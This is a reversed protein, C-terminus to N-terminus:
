GNSVGALRRAGRPHRLKERHLEQRDIGVSSPANTGLRVKDRQIDVVMIEITRGARLAAVDADSLKRFDLVIKEDRMRTLVLM